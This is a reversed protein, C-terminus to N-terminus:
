ALRGLRSVEAILTRVDMMKDLVPIDGHEEGSGPGAGGTLFAIRDRLAPRRALIERCVRDGSSGGLQRDLLVVDPEAAVARTSLSEDREDGFARLATVEAGARSFLKRYFRLLSEDDDVVVVRLGALRDRSIPKARRKEIGRAESQRWTTAPICVRFRAGGLRNGQHHEVTGGLREIAWNVYSLGLGTGGHGGHSFPTFLLPQRDLPVGEGDDEVDVAIWTRGERQLESVRIEIRHHGHRAANNLLNQLARSFFTDRGQIEVIGTVEQRLDISRSPAASIWREVTSEITPILEFRHGGGRGTGRVEDFVDAVMRELYMAHECVTELEEGPVQGRRVEDRMLEASGRLLSTAGILDHFLQGAIRGLEELRDQEEQRVSRNEIGNM